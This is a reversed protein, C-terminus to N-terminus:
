GPREGQRALRNMIHYKMRPSLRNILVIARERGILVEPRDREVAQVIARACADATIGRAHRPDITGARGGDRTFASIGLETQVYGPCALTITIGRDHVETRLSDFFGQLAHKSAAYATRRPPGVKGAISSVVVIQGRGRELMHPLVAKALTIPSFYNLEFIERDVHLPTELATSRQGVGANLILVDVGGPGSSAIVEAALSPLQAVNLLDAPRLRVEVGAQQGRCQERVRELAEARRATLTLHAGLRACAMALSAGIGSSAGTIWVHKGQLRM